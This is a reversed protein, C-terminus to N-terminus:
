EPNSSTGQGMSCYSFIYEAIQMVMDGVQKRKEKGLVLPRCMVPLVPATAYGQGLSTSELGPLSAVMCLRECFQISFQEIVLDVFGSHPM